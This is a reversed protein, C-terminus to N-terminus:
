LGPENEDLPTVPLEVDLEIATTESDVELEQVEKQHYASEVFAQEETLMELYEEEPEDGTVQKQLGEILIRELDEPSVTGEAIERLAVVPNKDNDREITLPAGAAIQRARQSAVLVLDFPNPVKLTCDEVTVRAM